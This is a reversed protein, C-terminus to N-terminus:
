LTLEPVVFTAVYSEMDMNSGNTGATSPGRRRGSSSRERAAM